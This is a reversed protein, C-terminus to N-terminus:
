QKAARSKMMKTGLRRALAMGLYASGLGLAISIIMYAVALSYDGGAMLGVTERCLTSFTTFAGLLGITLGARVDAGFNRLELAATLILALLFAGGVNTILTNLPFSEHCGHIQINKMLYRFIAGIFSGAGIFVYKRM